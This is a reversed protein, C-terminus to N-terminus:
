CQPEQASEMSQKLLEENSDLQRQIEEPTEGFTKGFRHTFYQKKRHIDKIEELLKQTKRDFTTLVDAKSFPLSKDLDPIIEIQDEEKRSANVYEIKLDAGSYDSDVYAVVITPLRNFAEFGVIVGHYIASGSYVKKLVKVRDGVRFTDVKKAHRLDIEMKIGNIEIVQLNEKHMISEM